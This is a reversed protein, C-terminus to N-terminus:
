KELPYQQAKKNKIRMRKELNSIKLKSFFRHPVSFHTLKLQDTQVYYTDRPNLNLFSFVFANNLKYTM